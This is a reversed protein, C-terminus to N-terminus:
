GPAPAAARRGSTGLACCGFAKPSCSRSGAIVCTCPRTLFLCLGASLMFCLHLIPCRPSLGMVLRAGCMGALPCCGVAAAMGGAGQAASSVLGAKDLVNRGLVVCFCGHHPLFMLLMLFLNHPSYCHAHLRAQLSNTIHMHPAARAADDCHCLCKGAENGGLHIKFIM